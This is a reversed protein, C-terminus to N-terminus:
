SLKKLKRVITSQNIGLHEAMKYTSKYRERAMQLLQQEVEGIAEKLPMIDNVSINSSSVPQMGLCEWVDRSSISHSITTVLLREIINELERVNGPWNYENLAAYADASFTKDINYKDSFKKIFHQALPIIDEKRERLPPITIPVVNIRYYLDARFSGREVMQSLDKNTAAIIRVDINIPHIGGIRTIKREQIAQLLKVQMNIPLEAIEDLLLVGNNAAEFLGKKGDRKAGTFAGTEYGFLESEILTEPIAGCNVKIFPGNKRSGFAHIFRAIMDKGVGTEGLLLVTSDVDAIESAIVMSKVFSPSNGILDPANDRFAEINPTNQNHNALSNQLKNLENISRVNVVVRTIDGKENTIPNATAILQQGNQCHQLVTIRRKEKIALLAASPYIIRNDELEAANNFNKGSNVGTIHKWASNVQLINGLGDTMMMGDCSSEILGNLEANLSTIENLKDSLQHLLVNKKNILYPLCMEIEAIGQYVAISKERCSDYGCAGCNLEDSPSYKGTSALIQKIEYEDPYELPTARNHYTRYLKDSIESYIDKAKLPNTTPVEFRSYEDILINRQYSSLSTNIKPGDTCGHCLLADIFYPKSPDFSKLIDLVNDKGDVAVKRFSLELNQSFGNAVPLLRGKSVSPSDVAEKSCHAPIIGYSEFLLKIEDFTLVENIIGDFEARRIEDKKAICPGIFVIKVNQKDKLTHHIMIGTAIMPSVVPCLYPILSPYHKEILNVLAPCAANIYANQEHQLLFEQTHQAAIEAGAAVEWVESFGLKKLAGIVQLPSVPYFSAVFSPALCAILHNKQILMNQVNEV